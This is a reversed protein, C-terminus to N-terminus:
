HIIKLKEWNWSCIKLLLRECISKLIPPRLYKAINQILFLSWCRHKGTFIEFNKFVIKKYFVELLQKQM